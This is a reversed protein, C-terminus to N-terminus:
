NFKKIFNAASLVAKAGEGAAIIIQKFFSNGVDGAAFLGPTKTESTCHDVVIEKKENFNVLDGLFSVSPRSGIEVFIGDARLNKIEQTKSDEWVINNVFKEGEIKKIHCSTIIEIKGSKQAKELNDKNARVQPGYELIYIKQAFTVLSIAAEFGANGGGAVAVTKHTYFPADCTVCYSVGKGIFEKEGLVELFRPEAGSAVIVTRAEFSKSGATFVSFIDGEKKVERVSDMVISDRAVGKIHKEFGSILDSGSIKEFGPYNEIDVAKKAMQGGFNKTILLFKMKQRVAYIGATIGAPGGGIIILDYIYNM